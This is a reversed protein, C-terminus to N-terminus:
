CIRTDATKCNEIGYNLRFKRSDNRHVFSGFEGDPSLTVSYTFNITRALEKLLDM